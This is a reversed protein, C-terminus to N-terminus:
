EYRLAEIPDLRAARIAPLLGFAVGIAVSVGVATATMSFPAVAEIKMVVGVLQAMALGTLIGIVGGIGTLTVAEVLFQLMIDRKTAGVAKRLGIERTRSTVSVMMIAMVGIGGVLLAVASLVIMVLFFVGTLKNFTDLIQDQTMLDFTNRDGPRLHRMERVAITVAEQADAVSVGARPKVPIWLANTRDIMFQRDALLFPIIAGIQQGPPSFINGPPQYLGIVEMPRGGVRVTRGIAGERGFVRRAVDHDLVAVASGSALEGRTFWRGDTLEGGQIRTFGDDAGMVTLMQTRVGKYEVRGFAQAWIAAYSIEPLDAIREAERRSLDPRIRVHAPLRDPNIPTQSFVKIVYFTSPGAIEITRVIQNSIGTVIAAMSMVTAVGIVVGLITLASRTKGARLADAAVRLNQSVQDALRM